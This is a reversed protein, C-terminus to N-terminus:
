LFSSGASVSSPNLSFFFLSPVMLLHVTETSARARLPSWILSNVSIKRGTKITQCSINSWSGRFLASFLWIQGSQKERRCLNPPTHFFLNSASIGGPIKSCANFISEWERQSTQMMAYESLQWCDWKPQKKGTSVFVELRLEMGKRTDSGGVNKRRYPIFFLLPCCSGVTSRRWPDEHLELLFTCCKDWTLAM